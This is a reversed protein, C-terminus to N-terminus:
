TQTLTLIALLALFPLLLEAALPRALRDAKYGDRWM